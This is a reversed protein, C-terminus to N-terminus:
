VPSRNTTKRYHIVSLLIAFFQSGEGVDYVYYVDYNFEIGYAAKGLDLMSFHSVTSLCRRNMKSTLFM